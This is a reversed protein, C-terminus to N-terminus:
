HKRMGEGIAQYKIELTMTSDINTSSGIVISYPDAFGVVSDSTLSGGTPRATTSLASPQSLGSDYLVAEVIPDVGSRVDAPEMARGGVTGAGSPDDLQSPINYVSNASIDSVNGVGPTITITAM